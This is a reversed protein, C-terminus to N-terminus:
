SSLKNSMKILQKLAPSNGRITVGCDTTAYVCKVPYGNMKNLIEPLLYASISTRPELKRPFEGGDIIIPNVSAGRASTGYYLVGVEVITLPFTSFNTIDICLNIPQHSVAGVPIAQKPIVQIKVKDRNINRWTNMVGLVAGLVAISLTIGNILTFSEAM